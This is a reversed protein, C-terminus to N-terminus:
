FNLFNSASAFVGNHPGVLSPQLVKEFNDAAKNEKFRFDSYLIGRAQKLVRNCPQNSERGTPFRMGLLKYAAFFSTSSNSREDTVYSTQGLPHMSYQGLPHM